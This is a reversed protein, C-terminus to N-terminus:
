FHLCFIISIMNSTSIIIYIIKEMEGEMVCLRQGRTEGKVCKCSALNTQRDPNNKNIPWTHFASTMSSINLTELAKVRLSSKRQYESIQKKLSRFHWKLTWTSQRTRLYHRIITKSKWCGLTRLMKLMSKGSLWWRALDSVMTVPGSVTLRVYWLKKAAFSTAWTDHKINKNM